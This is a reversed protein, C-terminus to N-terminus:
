PREFNVVVKLDSKELLLIQRQKECKRESTNKDRDFSICLLRGIANRPVVPQEREASQRDSKVDGNQIWGDSVPQADERGVAPDEAPERENYNEFGGPANGAPRERPQREPDNEIGFKGFPQGPNEVGLACRPRPDRAVKVKIGVAHQAQREVNRSADDDGEDKETM